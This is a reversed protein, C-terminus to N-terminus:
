NHAPPEVGLSRLSYDLLDKMEQRRNQSNLLIGIIKHDKYELYTVLCFGAEYTFGTKVGKVGPYTTLLNTENQLFYESHTSTQPIRHEFTQVIESFTPFNMLAYRTIVLLDRATSYQQGDGELGSPNTFNTDSLGLTKAKDNMAKIFAARGEPFNGALTESADNGSHLILGYLLEELSLVEDVSLGMTGEGVLYQKLVLYRDDVKPNELAVVATMIKTLSAMPLRTDAEKEYLVKNETLDYMLASRATVEPMKEQNETYAGLVDFVPKWLTLSSVQKNAIATLFNPLPSTIKTDKESTFKYGAFIISLFVFCVLFLLLFKKM